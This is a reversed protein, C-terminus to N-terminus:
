AIWCFCVFYSATTGACKRRCPGISYQEAVELGTTPIFILLEGNKNAADANVQDESVKIDDSKRMIPVCQKASGVSVYFDFQAQKESVTKVDEGGAICCRPAFVCKNQRSIISFPPRLRIEATLKHPIIFADHFSLHSLFIVLLIKDFMKVSAPGPGVQRGRTGFNSFLIM